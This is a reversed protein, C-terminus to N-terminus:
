RQELIAKAKDLQEIAAAIVFCDNLRMPEFAPRSAYDERQQRDSEVLGRIYESVTVHRGADVIFQYMQEPVSISITRRM